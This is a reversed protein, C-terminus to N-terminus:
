VTQWQLQRLMCNGWDLYRLHSLFLRDWAFVGFVIENCIIYSCAELGWAVNGDATDLFYIYKFFFYYFYFLIKSEFPFM